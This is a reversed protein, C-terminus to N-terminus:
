KTILYAEKVCNMGVSVYKNFSQNFNVNFNSPQQMHRDVVMM